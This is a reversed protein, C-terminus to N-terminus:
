VVGIRKKEKPILNVNQFLKRIPNPPESGPPSPNRLGSAMADSFSSFTRIVTVRSQTYNRARRARAQCIMKLKFHGVNRLSEGPGSILGHIKIKM